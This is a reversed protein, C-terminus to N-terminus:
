PRQYVCSHQAQHHLPTYVRRHGHHFPLALALAHEQGREKVRRSCRRAKQRPGEVERSLVIECRTVRNQHDQRQDRQQDRLPKAELSLQPQKEQRKQHEQKWHRAQELAQRDQVMLWAALLAEAVQTEGLLDEEQIGQLDVLIEGQRNGEQRDVVQSEHHDVGQSGAQSGEQRDEAQNGRHVVVQNGGQIEVLLGVAQSERPGVAQSKV